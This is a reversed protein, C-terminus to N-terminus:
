SKALLYVVTRGLGYKTVWGEAIFGNLDTIAMDRTVKVLRAYDARSIFPRDQLHTRLMAARDERPKYKAPQKRRGPSVLTKEVNVLKGRMKASPKFNLRSFEISEARIENRRDLLPSTVSVSFHGLEKVEVHYGDQLFDLMCDSLMIMFSKAEAISIGCKQSMWSALKDSDIKGNSVARARFKGKEGNVEDVQYFDYSIAMIRKKINENYKRQKGIILLVIGLSAYFL